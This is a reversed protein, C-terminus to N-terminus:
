SAAYPTAVIGNGRIIGSAVWLTSKVCTLKFHSGILGGTTTGNQTIAVNTTGDGDWAAVANSSDDDVNVLSGGIFTTGADTIVKHNGTATVATYFEFNLGVVPAPLTFLTAAAVNFICLAGSQAATLTAAGSVIHRASTLGETALLALEATTMSAYQAETILTPVNEPLEIGERKLGGDGTYVVARM